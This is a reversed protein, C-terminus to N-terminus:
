LAASQRSHVGLADPASITAPIDARETPLGNARRLDFELNRFGLLTRAAAELKVDRAMGHPLELTGTFSGAGRSGSEQHRGAAWACGSQSTSLGM